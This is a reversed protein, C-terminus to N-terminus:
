LERSQIIEKYVADIQLGITEKSYRAKIDDAIKQRDFNKHLATRLAQTWDSVTNECLIGNSDSVLERLATINSCIVPTGTCLAEAVVVGFTEILTPHVFFDTEELKKAIEEKPQYGTFIANVNKNYCLTKLEEIKNGGGIMTLEIKINLETQLAAIAKILLEPQKAPNKLKAWTAISCLRIKAPHKQKEKFAFQESDIVNGVVTFKSKDLDFADMIEQQLYTSVPLIKAANDYAQKGWRSLVPMKSFNRVRTWHETIVHPKKLHSSLWDGIIGAPFIVNSHIIDPTYNPSIKKYFARKVLWYQFPIAHYVIDRFLTSIEVKVTRIQNEDFRDSSRISFIKKSRHIVIALVVIENGSSQIARAHEKIFVGFNPNKRTPYWCAILLTKM